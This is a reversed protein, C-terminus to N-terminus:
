LGTEKKNSRNFKGTLEHALHTVWEIGEISRTLFVGMGAAGLVYIELRGFRPDIIYLATLLAASWMGSCNACTILDAFVKVCPHLTAKPQPDEGAGSSHPVMDTLPARLWEFIALYGVARAVLSSAPILALMVSLELGKFPVDPLRTSAFFLITELVTLFVVLTVYRCINASTNKDV